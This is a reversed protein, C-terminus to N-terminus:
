DGLDIYVPVTIHTPLVTITITLLEKAHFNWDAFYADAQALAREDTYDQVAVVAIRDDIPDNWAVIYTNM